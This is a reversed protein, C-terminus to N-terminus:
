NKTTAQPSIPHNRRVDATVENTNDRPGNTRTWTSSDKTLLANL